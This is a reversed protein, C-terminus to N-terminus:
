KVPKLIREPESSTNGASSTPASEDQQDQKDDQAALDDCVCVPELKTELCMYTSATHFVNGYIPVNEQKILTFWM